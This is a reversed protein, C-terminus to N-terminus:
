SVALLWRIIIGQEQKSCWGFVKLNGYLDKPRLTTWTAEIRVHGEWITICRQSILELQLIYIPTLTWCYLM